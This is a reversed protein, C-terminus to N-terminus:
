LIKNMNGNADFALEFPESLIETRSDGRIEPLLAESVLLYELHLTDQIYAVRPRDRDIGNCTKIGLQFCERDSELILPLKVDALVTSTVANPYTNALDCQEFLRRTIMDSLGVGNFNGHTEETLELIGIRKTKDTCLESIVYRGTVNPDMGNGSINKGAQGIILVDLRDALIQPMKDRSELLLKPEEELIREAPLGVLKATEELASELIALGGIINSHELIYAGMKPLLAPFNAFGSEHASDAGVQKGMGIVAM